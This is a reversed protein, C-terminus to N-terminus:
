AYKRPSRDGTRERPPPIFPGRDSDEKEDDPPSPFITGFLKRWKNASKSVKDAEYAERAIDAAEGVHEIFDCFDEGTVRGLVNHEPVGHDELFPVEKNAAFSSYNSVINELTKVVGEAVSDVSDPCCVGIVHELPYGKPRDNECNVRQWWKIAKVVNVYHLNCRANKGCTWKIQELPHTQEWDGANRDPIWLPETRWEAEERAAEAEFSNRQSPPVWSKVLRWDSAEEIAESSIVALSKYMEVEAESPASTIVLDLDVYSLIIGFSRSQRRWKGKYCNNLFPEFLGMAESPDPYDEKDLNTVVVIDVDSRTDGKPRIATSRRYSGQLFTSIIIDKTDESDLLRKRLTTHGNKMDDIQNSTPRIDRLFKKFYSPLEM